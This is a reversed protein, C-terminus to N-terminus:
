TKLCGLSPGVRNTGPRTGSKTSSGVNPLVYRGRREHGGSRLEHSRPRVWRHPKYTGRADRHNALCDSGGQYTVCNYGARMTEGRAAATRCQQLATAGAAPNLHESQGPANGPPRTAGPWRGGRLRRRRAGSARTGRPSRAGVSDTSSQGSAVMIRSANPPVGTYRYGGGPTVPFPSGGRSIPM